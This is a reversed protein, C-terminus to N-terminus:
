HKQAPDQVTGRTHPKRRAGSDRPDLSQAVHAAMYRLALGLRPASGPAAPGSRHALRIHHLTAQGPLLVVHEVELGALELITQGKLLLNEDAHTDVHPLQPCPM